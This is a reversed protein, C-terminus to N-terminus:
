LDNDDYEVEERFVQRWYEKRRKWEEIEADTFEFPSGEPPWDLAALEVVNTAVKGKSQIKFSFRAV